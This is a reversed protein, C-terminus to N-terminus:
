RRHYMVTYRADNVLILTQSSKILDVLIFMLAEIIIIDGDQVSPVWNDKFDVNTTVIELAVIIVIKITLAEFARFAEFAM